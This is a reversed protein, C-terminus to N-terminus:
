AGPEDPRATACHSDGGRPHPLDRSGQGRGATGVHPVHGSPGAIRLEGGLERARRHAAGLEQIGGSDCWTTSTMDAVVIAHAACAACLQEGILGANTGDIAAPIVIVAVTKATPNRRDAM